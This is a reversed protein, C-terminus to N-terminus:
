LSFVSKSRQSIRYYIVSAIFVKAIDGPIFPLIGAFVANMFNMKYVLVLWAAGSIYIVISGTIFSAAIRVIGATRSSLLQGVIFSAFIFGILYGTTPGLLYPMGFGAGQFIPLGSVGLVLYGFQSFSGLKRGLVAGSLLVFFTQLTIPVPTGNVPMRVYAGLATALIFFTVGILAIIGRGTIVDKDYTLAQTKM